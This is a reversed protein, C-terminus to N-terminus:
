VKATRPHLHGYHVITDYEFAVSGNQEHREFISRLRTLMPEFKPHGPEPTYSASRVRGQLGEYDFVQINEFRAQHVTDPSFFDAIGGAVNEHRVEKYDTGYQLLLDEYDRLFPTSDLRRQNWILVVWGDPRLIRAFEERAAPPDFWHFAQAATVFDVSGSALGTQEATGAVSVFRENGRLFDEAASRMSDNPEIGLVKNGLKLFQATLIGTGSGSDAVVSGENLGCERQLLTLVDHPYAPRHRAYDSVRTSFRNVSKTM